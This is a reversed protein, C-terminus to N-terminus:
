GCYFADKSREIHAAMLQAAKKADRQHIASVINLHDQIVEQQPIDILGILEMSSLFNGQQYLEYLKQNGCNKMILYHFYVDIKHFVTHSRIGKEFPVLLNRLDDIRAQPALHTFLETAKTELVIRCDFTELIEQTSLERVRMRGFPSHVLISETALQELAKNLPDLRIGLMESLREQFITEGPSLKKTVIMKKVQTYAVETHEESFQHM